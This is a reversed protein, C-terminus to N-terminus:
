ALRRSVPALRSIGLLLGSFIACGGLVISITELSAGMGFLMGAISPALAGAVRGMGMAFGGGTVRMRPEFSSAILTYIGTTGGFLCIGVLAAALTLWHFDPPTFGFAIVAFGLGLGLCAVLRRLPIYLAAIGVLLCAFVGFLNAIASMTSATSPDFGKDALIQPMWSLFFYTAMMFLFNATTIWLTPLLQAGSFIERYPTKPQEPPLPPLAAVADHGCRRLLANVRDLSKPDRRTLLFSPSEPLWLLILPLTIASAIAGFLFVAEWSFSKLLAAAVFGGIMGGLPFGISMVAVAMTRFRANAFEVALPNIVAVMAGIGVGTVVRWLALTATSHATASLAMGCGMLLLATIVIARRGIRDGLPALLFSGGMMGVLGSSFVLGLEAKSIGWEASIAPAAFSISLVDYGDLASLLATLLIAIKQARSMPSADLIDRPSPSSAM